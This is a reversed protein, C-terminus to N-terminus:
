RAAGGNRILGFKPNGQRSFRKLLHRIYGRGATLSDGICLATVSKGEGSNPLTVLIISKARSVVRNAEDLVELQLPIIGVEENKPTFTWREQQQLGKQCTVDFAYNRWNTALIVNDLYVNM